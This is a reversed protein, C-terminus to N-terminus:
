SEEKETSLTIGLEAHSHDYQLCEQDMAHFDQACSYSRLWRNNGKERRSWWRFGSSILRCGNGESVKYFFFFLLRSCSKNPRRRRRWRRTLSDVPFSTPFKRWGIPWRLLSDLARIWKRTVDLDVWINDAWTIEFIIVLGRERRGDWTLWDANRRRNVLWALRLQWDDKNVIAMRLM